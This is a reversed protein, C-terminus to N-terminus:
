FIKVLICITKKKIKASFLLEYHWYWGYAKQSMPANNYIIDYCRLPPSKKDWVDLRSLGLSFFIAKDITVAKLLCLFSAAAKLSESFTEMICRFNTKCHLQNRSDKQLNMLTAKLMCYHLTNFIRFCLLFHIGFFYKFFLIIFKDNKGMLFRSSVELCSM